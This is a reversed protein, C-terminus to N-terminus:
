WRSRTWLCGAVLYMALILVMVVWAPVPLGGLFDPPAGPIGTVAMFHGFVLPGLWLPGNDDGHYAAHGQGSLWFKRLNL